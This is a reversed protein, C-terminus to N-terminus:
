NYHFNILKDPFVLIHKELNKEFEENEKMHSKLKNIFGCDKKEFTEQACSFITFM